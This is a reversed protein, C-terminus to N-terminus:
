TGVELSVLEVPLIEVIQDYVSGMMQDETKASAYSVTLGDNNTSAVNVYGSEVKKMADIILFMCLRIDDDSEKIRGQTWYDLKKRALIELRPFASANAEGGLAKYQDYTIYGCMM